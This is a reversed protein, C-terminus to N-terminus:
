KEKTEDAMISLFANAASLGTNFELGCVAMMDLLFLPNLESLDSIDSKIEDILRKAAEYQREPENLQSIEPTLVETLRKYFDM